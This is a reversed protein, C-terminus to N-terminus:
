NWQCRPTLMGLRAGGFIQSASAGPPRSGRRFTLLVFRGRWQHAARETYGAHMIMEGLATQYAKEEAYDRWYLDETDSTTPSATEATMLHHYKTSPKEAKSVNKIATAALGTERRESEGTLPAQLTREASHVGQCGSAGHLIATLPLPLAQEGLWEPDAASPVRTTGTAIRKRPYPRRPWSRLARDKGTEGRVQWSESCNGTNSAVFSDARWEKRGM